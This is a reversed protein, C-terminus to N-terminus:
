RREGAAHAARGAADGRMAAQRIVEAVRPANVDLSYRSAITRRGAAGIRQRLDADGLLRTLCETWEDTTTAFLGNVGHEIIERNVGVPSVVVPVGCAMFQIAKFGCKGRAWEDDPLPYVGIDCANFLEVEGELSWPRNELDVGALSMPSTAGSVRFVFARSPLAQLAATVQSLYGATTPTGIWGIVPRAGAPPLTRRPVFVNVDISTPIVHVAPNHRRAFDALYSNGAIVQDCRRIIAGVKQPWKLASVYKNADSTNELFVADDFDYVLPVGAASLAREVLPPGLPMAERYILVLDPAPRRLCIAARALAQRVFLWAKRAHRGPRYVLAFFEPTYFPAIELDIGQSRLYPAYQAIRFRCGAGEYPVPSLALARIV